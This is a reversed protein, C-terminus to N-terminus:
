AGTSPKSRGGGRECREWSCSSLGFGVTQRPLRSALSPRSLTVRGGAGVPPNPAALQPLKRTAQKLSYDFVADVLHNGGFAIPGTTAVPRM